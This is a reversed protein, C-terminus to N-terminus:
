RSVEAAPKAAAARQVLNKALSPNGGFHLHVYSALVNNVSFGEPETRGSLSYRLQYVTPLSPSESIKSYHFSHGRVATGSPGLLCDRTVTAEVYGFHVLHDTMEFELPLVGALPVKRGDALLVSQGLYLMGGCEAYVPKGSAAFACVEALMTHNASLQKAYLEPYGGGLYLGDLNSPLHSDALPSFPVLEAGYQRLLDLNDEYYFSFACDRAIGYRVHPQLTPRTHQYTQWGAPEHPLQMFRDLDLYRQAIEAFAARRVDIAIEEEATRLGLHREPIALAETTPIRGLLPITSTSCIASELLRYHDNSNVGNLVLGAFRLEPDFTEFGKVIAAISRASKSADIVLVIPVNLLKAIEAGSGAEGEGAVGDFLGMMGEIIAADADATAHAFVERNAEHTLMWTDLNRAPRQCIASHHGTDLFDPGCKFPQVSLGRDRLGAMIALAATTKGVGSATGAVLIAIM